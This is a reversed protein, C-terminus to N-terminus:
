LKTLTAEGYQDTVSQSRKIGMGTINDVLYNAIANRETPYTQVVEYDNFVFTKGYKPSDEYEGILVYEGGLRASAGMNGKCSIRAGGSIPSFKGILFDHEHYIKFNLVANIRKM